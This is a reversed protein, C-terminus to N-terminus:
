SLYEGLVAAALVRWLKYSIGAALATLILIISNMMINIGLLVDIYVSM